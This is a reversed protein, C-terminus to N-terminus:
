PTNSAPKVRLKAGGLVATVELRAGLAIAGGGELEAAWEKGDVFVRGGGAHFPASATGHHGMLRIRPDNVDSGIPPPAKRLIRRGLYTSTITVVAFLAAEGAMGVPHVLAFIAVIGASAAPWLLWGSGTIVEFTLFIAGIALWVWLPHALFLAGLGEM